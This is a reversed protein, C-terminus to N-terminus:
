AYITVIARHKRYMRVYCRRKCKSRQRKKKFFEFTLHSCLEKNGYIGNQFNSGFAYMVNSCPILQKGWHRLFTPGDTAAAKSLIQPCVFHSFKTKTASPPEYLFFISLKINLVNQEKCVQQPAVRARGCGM